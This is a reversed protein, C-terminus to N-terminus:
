IESKTQHQSVERLADVRSNRTLIESIKDHLKARDIDCATARAELADIRSKVQENFSALFQKAFQWLIFALLGTGGLSIFQQPEM